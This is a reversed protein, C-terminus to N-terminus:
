MKFGSTEVFIFGTVIPKLHRCVAEGREAPLLWNNSMSQRTFECNVRLSKSTKWISQSTVPPSSSLRQSYFFFLSYINNQMNWLRSAKRRQGPRWNFKSLFSLSLQQRQKSCSDLHRHNSDTSPSAWRCDAFVDRAKHHKLHESIRLMLLWGLTPYWPPWLSASRKFMIHDKSPLCITVYYKVGCIVTHLFDLRRRFTIEAACILDHHWSVTKYQELIEPFWFFFFFM